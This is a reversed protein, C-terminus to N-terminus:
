PSTDAEQRKRQYEDYSETRLCDQKSLGPNEICREQQMGQVARYALRNASDMSCGSALPALALCIVCTSKMM